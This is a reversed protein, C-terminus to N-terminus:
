ALAPASVVSGPAFLRTKLDSLSLGPWIKSKCGIVTQQPVNVSKGVMTIGQQGTQADRGFGVYSYRGIDVREDMICRDVISHDGIFSNAMVVSNIVKAGNEVRVGTSLISNEVYGEIVCDSSVMSNVIKGASNQPSMSSIWSGTLIPWNDNINFGPNTDLLQLNAEYYAEVTGIDQWYGKFEHAFVRDRKVIRPLISYGFDHPSRLDEADESLCKTLFDSNFIYIGMSALNSRSNASKEEFEIIQGEYGISVTGFRHAEETPVRIVAVTVDAKTAEHSSLMKRYDMKYIHDGALILVRDSGQKMLYNLNQYIADATGCYSGIKPQLISLTNAGKNISVWQKLYETMASRQYDVLVAVENLQSNFCNSLTFDIVHLNGAFPLIPKPRQQCFIDMRKGRGGALIMASTKEM